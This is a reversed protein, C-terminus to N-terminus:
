HQFCKILYFDRCGKCPRRHLLICFCFFFFFFCPILLRTEIGYLSTFLGKLTIICFRNISLTTGFIDPGCQSHNVNLTKEQVNFGTWHTLSINPDNYCELYWGDMKTVGKTRPPM